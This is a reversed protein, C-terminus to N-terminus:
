YQMFNPQLYLAQQACKERHPLATQLQPVNWRIMKRVMRSYTVNTPILKGYTILSYINSILPISKAKKSCKFSKAHILPSIQWIPEQIHVSTICKYITITVSIMRSGFSKSVSDNNYRHIQTVNNYTPSDPLHHNRVCHQAMPQKQRMYLPQEGIESCLSNIPPSRVAGIVLRIASNHVYIHSLINLIDNKASSYIM